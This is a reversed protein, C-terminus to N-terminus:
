NSEKGRTRYYVFGGRRMRASRTDWSWKPQTNQPRHPRAHRRAHTHTCINKVDRIQSRLRARRARLGRAPPGTWRARLGPGLGPFCIRDTGEKSAMCKAQLKMCVGRILCELAHTLTLVHRSRSRRHAVACLCSISYVAVRMQGASRQRNCGMFWAHICLVLVLVLVLAPVIM